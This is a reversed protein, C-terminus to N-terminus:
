TFYSLPQWNSVGDSVLLLWARSNDLEFTSTPSTTQGNVTDGPQLILDVAVSNGTDLGPYNGFAIPTGNPVSAAAPLIAKCDGSSPADVLNFRGAVANFTGGFPIGSFTVIPLWPLATASSAILAWDTDGPGTKTYLAGTQTHSYQAGIPAPTAVSTPDDTGSLNWIANHNAM